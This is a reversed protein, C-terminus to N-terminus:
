HPFALEGILFLTLLGGIVTAVYVLLANEKHKVIALLGTIFGSFGTAMGALMSLALFPRASIDALITRGAPVSEYLSRTFSSGIVFLIPMVAILGVTWRGLTTGPMFRWSRESM